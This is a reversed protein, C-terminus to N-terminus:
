LLYKMDLQSAVEVVSAGPNYAIEGIMPSEIWHQLTSINERYRDMSPAIQNAVWGTLVLGDKHIAEVTLITHNICGLEIGVVLIVPLKILKPLDSFTEQNNIPVRWGGAGEVICFDPKNTMLGRYFGALRDVSLRQGMEGAAIHPAIAPKLAIPNVQEYSLPLSSQSLLKLADDNKLGDATLDCGAAVPKFGATSLGKKAAAALIGIGVYTKGVGTNTGTVFYSKHV